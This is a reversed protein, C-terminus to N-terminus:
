RGRKGGGCGRIHLRQSSRITRGNQSKFVVQARERQAKPSCLNEAVGIAGDKGASLRLTFSKIPVDPVTGFSTALQEGGPIRITGVLDFDVQGRLAVILNPLAGKPKDPDKVFYVSGRLPKDLLPTVAVASGTRAKQCKGADFEDQTCADTVVTLLANLALPLTVDVSKLNAQGPTQTLKAVFPTSSRIGTHGKSGATL